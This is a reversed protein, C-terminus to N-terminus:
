PTFMAAGSSHRPAPGMAKAHIHLMNERQGTFCVRCVPLQHDYVSRTKRTATVLLKCSRADQGGFTDHVDTLMNM